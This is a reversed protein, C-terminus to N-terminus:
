EDRPRVVTSGSVITASSRPPLEVELTTTGILIRDGASLRHNDSIKNGNVFTGNSSELDSIELAGDVPRLVAHRRSMEDDDIVIDGSQRGISRERDSPFRQGDNAGGKVVLSPAEEPATPPQGPLSVELTTQGVRISDGHSLKRTDEIPMGNVFTGNSSGLDRVELEDGVARVAAHRRSAEDDDLVIDTGERGITVEGRVAHREGADPGTAVVLAPPEGAGDRAITESPRDRAV